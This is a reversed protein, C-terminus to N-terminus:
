CRREVTFGVPMLNRDIKRLVAKNEEPTIGPQDIPIREKDSSTDAVEIMEDTPKESLPPTNSGRSAM